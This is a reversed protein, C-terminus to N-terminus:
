MQLYTYTYHIMKITVIGNVESSIFITVKDSIIRGFLLM